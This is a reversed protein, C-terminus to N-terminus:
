KVTGKLLEIVMGMADANEWGSNWVRPVLIAPGGADRWAIIESDNDDVLVSNPAALAAKRLSLHLNGEKVVLPIHKDVWAIKGGAGTRMLRSAVHVNQPGVLERAARYLDIGGKAWMLGEFFADDWQCALDRETQRFVKTLDYEGAPWRGMDMGLRECMAQQMACLTGDLDLWIEWPKDM